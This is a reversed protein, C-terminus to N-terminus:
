KERKTVYWALDFTASAHRTANGGAVRAEFGDVSIDEYTGHLTHLFTVANPYTGETKIQVTIVDFSRGHTRVGPHVGEIALGCAQALQMLADLRANLRSGDELTLTTDPRRTAFQDLRQATRRCQGDLLDFGREEESLVVAADAAEVRQVILPRLAVFYFLATTALCIAVAGADITLHNPADRKATM